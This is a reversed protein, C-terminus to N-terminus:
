AVQWMDDAEDLHSVNHIMTFVEEHPTQHAEVVDAKRVRLSAVLIM